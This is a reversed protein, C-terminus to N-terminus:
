DEPTINPAMGGFYETAEGVEFGEGYAKQVYSQVYRAELGPLVYEFQRGTALDTVEMVFYKM